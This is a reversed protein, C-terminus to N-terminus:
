FDNPDLHRTPQAPTQCQGRDAVSAIPLCDNCVARTNAENFWVDLGCTECPTKLYTTGFLVHRPAKPFRTGLSISARQEQRKRPSM